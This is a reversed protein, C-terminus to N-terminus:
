SSKAERHRANIGGLLHRPIHMHLHTYQLMSCCVAACQLVSCCSAGCQLVSRRSPARQTHQLTNLVSQLHRPSTSKHFHYLAGGVLCKHQLTNYHTATHQLICTYICIYLHRPQSASRHPTTYHLTTCHPATHHLTTCFPATHHLITGYLLTCTTGHTAAHQLTSNQSSRAERRKARMDGLLYRPIHIHLYTCQM